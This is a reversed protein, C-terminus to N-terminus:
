RVRGLGSRKLADVAKPGMAFMITLYQIQAFSNGRVFKLSPEMCLVGDAQDWAQKFWNAKSTPVLCIGDGHAIFKEIWPRPASYPPNMWVTGEWPLKLGDDLITYYRKAPIWPIGGATSAVDLDFEIALAEFIHAPTYYDDSSGTDILDHDFDMDLQDSM